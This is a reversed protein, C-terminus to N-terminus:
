NNIQDLEELVMNACEAPRHKGERKAGGLLDLEMLADEIVCILDDDESKEAIEALRDYMQKATLKGSVTDECIARVKERENM